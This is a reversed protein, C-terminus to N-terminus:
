LARVVNRITKQTSKTCAASGPVNYVNSPLIHRLHGAKGASTQSDSQRHAPQKLSLSRLAALDVKADRLRSRLSSSGFSVVLDRAWCINSHCCHGCQGKPIKHRWRQHVGDRLQRDVSWGLGHLHDLVAHVLIQRLFLLSALYLDARSLCAGWTGGLNLSPLFASVAAVLVRLGSFLRMTGLIM